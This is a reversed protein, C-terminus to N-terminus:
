RNAFLVFLIKMLQTKREIVKKSYIDISNTQLHYRHDTVKLDIELKDNLYIDLSDEHLYSSSEYNEFSIRGHDTLYVDSNSNLTILTIRENTKPWQPVSFDLILSYNTWDENSKKLPFYTKNGFLEITFSTQFYESQDHDFEQVKKKWLNETWPRDLPLFFEDVFSICNM